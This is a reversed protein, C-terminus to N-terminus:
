WTFRWELLNEDNKPQVSQMVRKASLGRLGKSHTTSTLRDSGLVTRQSYRQKAGKTPKLFAIITTLLPSPIKNAAFHPRLRV